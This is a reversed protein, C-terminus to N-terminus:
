RTRNVQGPHRAVWQALRDERLAALFAPAEKPDPTLRDGPGEPPGVPLSIGVPDVSRLDPLVKLLDLLPPGDGDVVLDPGVDGILAFFRAPNTLVEKEGAQRILGAALLQAHRDRDLGGQPLGHRQRLLDVSAAGDLRQCGTPFVRDTHVSRVERPLCVEVGGVRDTLRRLVPYTLVAGAAVRVGTLDTVVRRTLEYGRGLDPRGEGAGRRFAANLKDTGHGPIPVALDRPLSILYPRSRDAPIHVLLVADALRGHEGVADDVGLLLVNLAGAPASGAPKALLTADEAVRDPTFQPIGVGLVGLLVLAVGGARLRLRRRRRAAALRDIASRVPGVPPALAEHRAFAARLDDEIM